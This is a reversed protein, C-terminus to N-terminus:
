SPQPKDGSKLLRAAINRADDAHRLTEDGFLDLKDALDYGASLQDRHQHVGAIWVVGFFRTLRSLSLGQKPDFSCNKLCASAPINVCGEGLCDFQFHPREDHTWIWIEIAAQVLKRYECCAESHRRDM